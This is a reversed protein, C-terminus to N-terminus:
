TVAIVALLDIVANSARFLAAVVIRMTNGFKTAVIASAVSTEKTIAFRTNLNVWAKRGIFIVAIGFCDASMNPRADVSALALFTVATIPFFRALLDVVALKRM